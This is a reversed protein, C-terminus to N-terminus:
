GFYQYKSIKFNEKLGHPLVCLFFIYILSVSNRAFVNNLPKLLHSLLYDISFYSHFPFFIHLLSTSSHKQSLTSFNLSQADFFTENKEATPYIWVIPSLICSYTPFVSWLSSSPFYKSLFHVTILSAFFNPSPNFNFRWLFLLFHTSM